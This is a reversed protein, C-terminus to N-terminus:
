LMKWNKSEGIQQQEHNDCKELIFNIVQLNIFVFRTQESQTIFIRGLLHFQLMPILFTQNRAVYYYKTFFIKWKKNNNTHTNANQLSSHLWVFLLM